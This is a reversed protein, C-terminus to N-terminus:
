GQIILQAYYVRAQHHRMKAHPKYVHTVRKFEKKASEKTICDVTKFLKGNEKKYFSLTTGELHVYNGLCDEKIRSM